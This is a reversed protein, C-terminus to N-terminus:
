AIVDGKELEKPAQTTDKKGAQTGKKPVGGNKQQTLKQSPNTKKPTAKDESLTQFKGADAEKGTPM